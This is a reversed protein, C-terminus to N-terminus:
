LTNLFCGSFDRPAVFRFRELMTARIRESMPIMAGNKGNRYCNKPFRSFDDISSLSNHSGSHDDFLARFIEADDFEGIDKGFIRATGRAPPYFGLLTNLVVVGLIVSADVWLGLMSKVFSAVLLVYVLINNLQSLFRKLPGSRKGAPLRNPGFKQLRSQAEAADLGKELSTDLRRRTEEVTLAHWDAGDSASNRNVPTDM